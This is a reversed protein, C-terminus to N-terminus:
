FRRGSALPVFDFAFAFTLIAFDFEFAGAPPWRYLFSFM